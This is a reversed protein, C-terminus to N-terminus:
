PSWTYEVEATGLSPNSRYTLGSAFDYRILDIIKRQASRTGSVSTYGNRPVSPLLASVTDRANAQFYIVAGNAVAEDFAAASPFAHQIARALAGSDQAGQPSSEGWTSGTLIGSPEAATTILRGTTAFSNTWARSGQLALTTVHAVYEAYPRGGGSSLLTPSPMHLM